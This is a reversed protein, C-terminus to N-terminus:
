FRNQVPGACSLCAPSVTFSRENAKMEKESVLKKLLNCRFQVVGEGPEKSRAAPRRGEFAGPVYIASIETGPFLKDVGSRSVKLVGRLFPSDM